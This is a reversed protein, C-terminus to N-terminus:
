QVARKANIRGYGFLPDWGPAGLDNASSRLKNRVETPTWAPHRSLILAAVGAAHPSAMSTGSALQLNGTVNFLTTVTPKAETQEKLYLGDDLTVSVVPLWPRGQADVETGLTGNFNGPQNNHIILAACGADKAFEAKQAFTPGGRVVVATKGICSQLAYDVPTGGAAYITSATLGRRSTLASYLMPIAELERSNDSTVYLSTEVGTGVPYSSLNNVGPATVEQDTGFQSFNSLADNEDTAGVAIVDPHSAPWGVYPLNNAAPAAASNGSAAVLVIGAQYALTLAEDAGESLPGMTPLPVGQVGFGFSMNIVDIGNDIAWELGAIIKDTGAGGWACDALRMSYLEVKPAVGVTYRGNNRGAVIGAVHTGHGQCDDLGHGDGVLDIGGAVVLDPHDIDIGSDFIGVKVGQGAYGLAWAAPAKIRSVGYDTIQKGGFPTMTVIDEVFRVGAAAALASEQEAPITAAVARVYKFQRTVRGGFREILAIEAPGPKTQFGVLVSKEALVVDARPNQEHDTPSDCGAALAAALAVVPLFRRHM